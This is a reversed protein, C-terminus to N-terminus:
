RQRPVFLLLTRRAPVLRSRAAQAISEGTTSGLAKRVAERSAGMQFEAMGWMIGFQAEAKNPDAIQPRLMDLLALTLSRSREGAIFPAAAKLEPSNELSAVLADFKRRVAEAPTGPQLTASLYFYATEPTVLDAGALVPGTLKKWEPDVYARSILWQAATILAAYEKELAPGPIPWTMILHRSSLDWAVTKDAPAPNSRCPVPRSGAHAKGLAQSFASLITVPEAGGIATVLTRGPQNFHTDRYRQLRMMTIRAPDLRVTVQDHGFRWAQNWAAVAFKHSMLNQATFDVESNARAIERKLINADFPLEALWRTHHSVAERWNAASGYYDLRMHDALTEANVNPSDQPSTTRIVMHELLHSYQACGDDDNALGAPLFSYVSLGTSGPVQVYQIEVGNPLHRSQVEIGRAAGCLCLFLLLSNRM